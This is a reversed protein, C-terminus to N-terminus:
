TRAAVCTSGNARSTSRLSQDDPIADVLEVKFAEGRAAFFSKAEDRSWEEKTFPADRAIIERMKKEIAAFDEPTFPTERHFDYYFGNDIVPGITVQTGPFLAQVAEALVHACDHRILELARPDERNIFEIKADRTIKDALDMLVGDLAMAVTRKALSPSISKAIDAGSVGPEFQRQAGDPFTVSIM